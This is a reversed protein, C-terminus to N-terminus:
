QRLKWIRICFKSSHVKLNHVLTNIFFNNKKPINQTQESKKSKFPASYNPLNAFYTSNTYRMERKSISLFCMSLKYLVM